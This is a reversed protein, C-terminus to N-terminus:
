DLYVRIEEFADEMRQMNAAMFEYLAVWDERKHFDLGSKHLYIRAVVEGSEREFNPLWILGESFAVDFIYRYTEFERYREMRQEECRANFELIVFAGERSVDFKMEVGKLKTDYLIFKGKRHKFARKFRCYSGFGEWFDIKLQKLEAKSYM